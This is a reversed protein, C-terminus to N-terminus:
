LKAKWRWAGDVQAWQYLMIRGNTTVQLAYHFSNNEDKRSSIYITGGDVTGDRNFVIRNPGAVTTDLGTGIAPGGAISFYTMGDAALLLNGALRNQAVHVGPDTPFTGFIVNTQLDVGSFVNGNITRTDPMPVALAAQEAPVCNDDVPNSDVCGAYFNNDFAVVINFRSGLSAVRAYSLFQKLELASGETRALGTSRSRLIGGIGIVSLISLISVVVVIETLTYGRKHFHGNM